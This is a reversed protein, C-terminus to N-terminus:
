EVGWLTGGAVGVALGAEVKTCLPISPTRSHRLTFRSMSIYILILPKLWGHLCRRVGVQMYM